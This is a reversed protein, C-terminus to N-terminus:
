TVEQGMRVMAMAAERRSLVAKTAGLSTLKEVELDDEGRAVIPLNPSLRRATEVVTRATRPDESAVILLSAKDLKAVELISIMSPDGYILSLGKKKMSEFTRYQPEITVIPTDTKERLIDVVYTSITGGGTVVIHGSQEEPLNVATIRGEPLRRKVTKYITDTFGSIISGGLMSLIVVNLTISYVEEGLVGMSNGTQILVFAMESIPLMGLFLALPIVRRYGMIWSIGSLIAGKGMTVALTLLLVTGLHNILFSPDMLMGVSVFFLLGFIDRLPILESMAKHGYDSESLVVGAVFAGFASSLGITASLSGIGLGMAMVFLLFLERSEWQSVKRLAWPIAKTGMIAMSALFATAYGASKALPAWGGGQSGHILFIMIPIVCLDQVISMGLMIRGSLTRDYGRSTLTKLIVATSSSVMAAAFWLAQGGWGQADAIFTVYGMTLAVQILTGGFAIRGIPRLDKLSFELGLSFLLLTAGIDALREINNVESVTAGGTYPGILIGAVIYGLILPQRFFRALSGGLLGALIVLSLDGAIGSM